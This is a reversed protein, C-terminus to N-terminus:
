DLIDDPNSMAPKAPLSHEPAERKAAQPRKVFGMREALSLPETRGDETETEILAPRRFASGPGEFDVGTRNADDVAHPLRAHLESISPTNSQQTSTKKAPPKVVGTREAVSLDTDLNQAGWAPDIAVADRSGKVDRGPEQEESM